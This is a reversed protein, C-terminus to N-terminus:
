DGFLPQETIIKTEQKDILGNLKATLQQNYIGVMGGEIQDAQWDERIRTVVGLYSNYAGKLNDFYQHVLHGKNARVWSFFRTVLLPRQRLRFVEVGDKGVFDQIKIPNYFVWEKYEEWYEALDDPTIYKEKVPPKSRPKPEAQKKPKAM